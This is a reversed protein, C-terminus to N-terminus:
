VKVNSVVVQQLLRTEKGNELRPPRRKAFVVDVDFFSEFNFARCTEHWRRKLPPVTRSPYLVKQLAHCQCPSMDAVYSLNVSFKM